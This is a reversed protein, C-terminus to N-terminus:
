TEPANSSDTEIEDLTVIVQQWGNPNHVIWRKADCIINLIQLVNGLPLKEEELCVKQLIVAAEYRYILCM